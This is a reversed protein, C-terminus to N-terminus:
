RGDGGDEPGVFHTESIGASPDRGSGQPATAAAAAPEPEQTAPAPPTARARDYLTEPNRLWIDRQAFPIEIGEETFRQAIMHNFDSLVNLKEGVDRIIARIEFELGDPGFRALVVSPEPNMLVMDHERAIRRLVQEVKRTDTGDAVGVTAFVRGGGNGRTCNTVTGSVVDSDPM